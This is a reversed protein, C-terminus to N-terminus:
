GGSAPLNQQSPRELRVFVPKITIPRGTTAISLSVHTPM